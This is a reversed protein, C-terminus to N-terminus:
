SLFFKLDVPFGFYFINTFNAFIMFLFWLALIFLGGESGVVEQGFYGGVGGGGGFGRLSGCLPLFQLYPALTLGKKGDNM